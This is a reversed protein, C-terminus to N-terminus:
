TRKPLSCGFVWVSCPACWTEWGCSVGFFLGFGSLAAAACRLLAECTIAALRLVGGLGELLGEIVQAEGFVQHGLDFPAQPALLLQQAFDNPHHTGRQKPAAGVGFQAAHPAPIFVQGRTQETRQGLAGPELPESAQTQLHQHRQPAVGGALTRGRAAAPLPGPHGIVRHEFLIALLQAQHAGPPTALFVPHERTNIPDEQDHDNALALQDHGDVKGDTPGVGCARPRRAAVFQM